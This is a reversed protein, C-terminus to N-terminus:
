PIRAWRLRIEGGRILAVIAARYRYGHVRHPTRPLSGAACHYQRLFELLRHISIKEYDADPDIAGFKKAIQVLKWKFLATRKLALRIIGPMTAPDLSLLLDRVDAARIDFPLRLLIRYADLELGSRQGTGPPSSSPSSAASRRTQKIAPVSMASWVTM